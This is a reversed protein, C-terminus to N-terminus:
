PQPFDHDQKASLDSDFWQENQANGQWLNLWALTDSLYMGTRAYADAPVEPEAKAPRLGAFRGRAVAGAKAVRRLVTRCAAVFGKDTEGSRRHAEPKPEDESRRTIAKM